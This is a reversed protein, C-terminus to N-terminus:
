NKMLLVAGVGLLVILLTNGSLGGVQGPAYGYRYADPDIPYPRGNRYVVPLANEARTLNAKADMYRPIGTVLVNELLRVAADFFGGGSIGGFDPQNPLTSGLSDVWTASGDPNPFSQWDFSM